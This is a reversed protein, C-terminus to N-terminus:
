AKLALAALIAKSFDGGDDVQTVRPHYHFVNSREGVLVVSMELALAAGLEAHRGGTGQREWGEPNLLLMVDARRVDDLDVMAADAGVVHTERLWTSTVELGRVGLVRMITQARERFEYPAAIYVKGTM